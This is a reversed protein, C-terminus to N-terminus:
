LTSHFGSTIPELGAPPRSYVDAPCSTVNIVNPNLIVLPCDSSTESQLWQVCYSEYSQNVSLDYHVGGHQFCLLM